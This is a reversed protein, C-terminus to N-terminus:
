IRVNHCPRPSKQHSWNNLISRFFGNNYMQFFKGVKKDTTHDNCLKDERLGHKDSHSRWSSTVKKELCLLKKKRGVKRFVILSRFQAIVERNATKRFILKTKVIRSNAFGLKRGTKFHLRFFIVFVFFMIKKGHM